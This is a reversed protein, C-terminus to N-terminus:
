AGDIKPIILTIYSDNISQLSALNDQFASCLAYFDDKIFHWCRKIFESNFGDRGSAKDNPLNRVVVDIEERTFPEELWSLESNNELFYSLNFAM